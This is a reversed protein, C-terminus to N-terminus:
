AHDRRKFDPVRNPITNKTVKKEMRPFRLSFTYASVM